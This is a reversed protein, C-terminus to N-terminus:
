AAWALRRKIQEAYLTQMSPPLQDRIYSDALYPLVAVFAEERVEPNCCGTSGTSIALLAMRAPPCETDSQENRAIDSLRWVADSATETDESSSQILLNSVQENNTSLTM